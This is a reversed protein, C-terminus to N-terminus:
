GAGVREVRFLQLNKTGICVLFQLSRVCEDRRHGGRMGPTRPASRGLSPRQSRSRCWAPLFVGCFGDALNDLCVLLVGFGHFPQRSPAHGSQASSKPHLIIFETDNEGISHPERPKECLRLHQVSRRVCRRSWQALRIRARMSTFPPLSQQMSRCCPLASSSTFARGM